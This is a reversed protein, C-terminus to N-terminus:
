SERYAVTVKDSFARQRTNLNQTQATLFINVLTSVNLYHFLEITLTHATLNLNM